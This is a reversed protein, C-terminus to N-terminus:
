DNNGAGRDRQGSMGIRFEEQEAIARLDVLLQGFIRRQFGGRADDMGVDGDAHLVLRALRQPASALRRRHPQRDVRDLLALGADGDGGAVGARQHGHSAEAKAHECPISRGASAATQGVM